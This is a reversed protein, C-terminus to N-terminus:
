LPPQTSCKCESIKLPIGFATQMFTVREPHEENVIGDGSTSQKCNKVVTM